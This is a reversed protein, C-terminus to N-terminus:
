ESSTSDLEVRFGDPVNIQCGTKMHQILARKLDCIQERLGNVEDNLNLNHERLLKVKTSLDSERQLRRVRCKSAAIRNRAKKRDVKLQEQTKMDAPVVSQLERLMDPNMSTFPHVGGAAAHVSFAGYQSADVTHPSSYVNMVPYASSNYGTQLAVSVSPYTTGHSINPILDMTTATVYTPAASALSPNADFQSSTTLNNTSHSHTHHIVSSLQTNANQVTKPDVDCQLQDLADLFGQAYMEQEETVPASPQLFRPPTPTTTTVTCDSTTLLTAVEPTSLPFTRTDPTSLLLNLKQHLKAKQREALDLYLGGTTPKQFDIDDYLSGDITVPVTTDRLSIM